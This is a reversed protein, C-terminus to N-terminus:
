TDKFLDAAIGDALFKGKATVLLHKDRVELLQTHFFRSAAKQLYQLSDPGFRRSIEELSVGWMTRLGIMVYENYAQADSLEEREIPLQGKELAEIYRSTNAPNWIREGPRFSHASPGLGLYPEGSWYSRNHRSYFGPKAFNSIEYHEYGYHAMMQCLMEFQRAAQEEDVARREGKRIFVDLATQKEITLSYASIHPVQMDVLMQVNAAWHEDTLGPTGYILDVTLNDFGLHQAHLISDRAQQVNHARNMYRLDQEHFSQVGISLRNIPTQSLVQLKEPTLDDPNAELTIEADAKLPFYHLVEALIEELEHRELISPTGGGLYLTDLELQPQQMFAFFDKQLRIEQKLAQLFDAKQRLSVSFHFNCYHCAQRCFPIHIYIGAM